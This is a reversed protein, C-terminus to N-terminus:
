GGLFDAAAATLQEPTMGAVSDATEEMIRKRRAEADEVEITGKHDHEVKTPANLGLLRSKTDMCRLIIAANQPRGRDAWHALILKDLRELEMVIHKDALEGLHAAREEIAKKFHAQARVHSIGVQEAIQRFNLGALRLEFVKERRVLAEAHTKNNRAKMRPSIEGM